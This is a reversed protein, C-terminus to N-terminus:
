KSLLQCLQSLGGYIQYKNTSLSVHLLCRHCFSVFPFPFPQNYPSSRKRYAPNFVGRKNAYGQFLPEGEYMIMKLKKKERESRREDSMRAPTSTSLARASTVTISASTSTSPSAPSNPAPATTSTTVFSAAPIKRLGGKRDRVQQKELRLHIFHHRFRDLPVAHFLIVLSSSKKIKLHFPPLMWLTESDEHPGRREGEKERQELVELKRKPEEILPRALILLPCKQLRLLNSLLLLSLQREKKERRKQSRNILM